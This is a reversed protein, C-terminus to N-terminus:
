KILVMKRTEIFDSNILKYFYVGSPYNSGDWEVEYTSPQLQENVLTTVERGLVDYVILRVLVGRGESVGRSLPISFKINTNPNFPNPYNQSLSYKAPVESGIKEVYTIGGTTTKLMINDHNYPTAYHIGIVYGTLKNPFSLRFFNYNTDSLQQIWNVGGNSSYKIKGASSTVWGHLSDAFEISSTLEQLGTNYPTWNTGANVTKYINPASGCVWGTNPNIFTINTFANGSATFEFFWNLGGNTSKYIIGSSTVARGTNANIFFISNVSLNACTYWNSGSNTTKLISAWTAAWGTNYNAYFMHEFAQQLSDIYIRTFNIGGNTTRFVERSRKGADDWYGGFTWGTQENMFFLCYRAVSGEVSFWNVGGNTTKSTYGGNNHQNGWSATIYGTNVNLFQLDTYSTTVGYESFLTFWGEQTKATNVFVMVFLSFLIIKKM